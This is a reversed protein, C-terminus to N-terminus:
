SIYICKLNISCGYALGRAHVREIIHGRHGVRIDYGMRAMFRATGTATMCLFQLWWPPWDLFPPGGSGVTRDIWPVCRGEDHAVPHARRAIELTQVHSKAWPRIGLEHPPDWFITL